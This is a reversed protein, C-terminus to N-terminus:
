ITPIQIRKKNSIDALTVTRVYITISYADHQPTNPLSGWSPTNVKDLVNAHKLITTSPYKQYKTLIVAHIM